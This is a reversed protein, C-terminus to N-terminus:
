NYAVGTKLWVGWQSLGCRQCGNNDKCSVNCVTSTTTDCTTPCCDNDDHNAFEVKFGVGLYPTWCRCEDYWAYSLHTFVTHSIYRTRAGCLDIDENTILVPNNSTKTQLVSLGSAIRRDNIVQNCAGTGATTQAFQANDVGPNRIPRIGSIGGDDDSPGTFNNNGKHITATRTQTASLIIATDEAVTCSMDDQMGAFGYVHSDGKLAWKETDFVAPCECRQRLKECSRGYFDYGFDWSWDCWSFNFLAVVDAQVGISSDVEIHTLNAVPAYERAFQANPQTGTAGGGAVENAWLSSGVEDTLKEALAYRSNEGAPCLDFVRCQRAKFLHTFNGDLYFGFSRDNCEDEWLTYHFTLGGGLAWHDGNGVIPEFLYCGEPRNGTPAAARINLGFHYDCDQFFNWGLAFELDAFGTERLVCDCGGCAWKSAQLRQFKNPTGDVNNLTPAACGSFFDLANTLLNSQAVAQDAFYGEVYGQTGTSINCECCDLRWRTHVVPGHIRFYLGELWNDLGVYLDFNVLFTDVRPEFSIESSFTTPLGFYDALWARSDRNTVRSGQVKITPCDCNCDVDNGFICCTLRDQRFTRLYEPKVSFVWYWCDKDYQNIFQTWGVLEDAADISQSRPQLFPVAAMSNMVFGFSMLLALSLLKKVRHQM